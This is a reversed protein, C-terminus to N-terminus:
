ALPLRRHLTLPPRGHGRFLTSSSPPGVSRRPCTRPRALRRRLTTSNALSISRRVGTCSRLLRRGLTITHLLVVSCRMDTRARLLAFIFPQRSMHACSGPTLSLRPLGSM